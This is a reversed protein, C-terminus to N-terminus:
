NMFYLITNVKIEVKVLKIVSYPCVCLLLVLIKGPNLEYRKVAKEAIKTLTKHKMKSPDKLM